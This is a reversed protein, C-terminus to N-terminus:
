LDAAIWLDVGHKQGAGVQARHVDDIRELVLQAFGDDAAILRQRPM